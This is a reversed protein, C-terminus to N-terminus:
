KNKQNEIYRKVTELSVSGVTAIFKARTWLTPLRKRLEPFRNKMETSSKGKLINLVSPIPYDPDIQILCHVHDSMVELELVSFNKSEDSYKFLLEKLFSQMAENLVGRRYKTCWIVHYICKHVTTNNSQYETEKNIINM